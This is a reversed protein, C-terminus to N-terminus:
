SGHAPAAGPPHDATLEEVSLEGPKYGPLRLSPIISLLSIAALILFTAKLARLRASANLLVAEDVEAPTASTGGLVAKLQDNSVFDIKDFNIETRLIEPLNSQNFAAVIFLSLLGVAVVSSFAAGLASSVNNVVGRLAGVDGALEKPSATVLVNFLLTLMTGEGIGLIVLGLIVMPTGWENGVTFALLLSGVTILSFCSVGLRRPTLRSYLRVSLIAAAAVALAYPVIAVSTFLPTRDQVIQIYLPLLFAVISGIAGAVLFSIVAAREESSDLVELALLPTKKDAVRRESWVFFTQGFVIGLAILFPAPSLGFLSIPAAEKAAVMGWSNLNNFGFLTCAIALASLVVGVADISIGKSRPIPKLKFSLVFVALSIIFILWFSVRWSLLTAIFGAVVFTLGSAVAPMAALIGVAQAQQQDRYNAAILVVLTPVLAAAALGAIAQAINMSDASASVAMLAMAAGHVLASVQFVLREGFLKGIKAGLMVFAAVFLSYIVLATAVSTAPANIDEIIPGLSVPLANINIGMQLQALVIIALPLWSAKVAAALANPKTM